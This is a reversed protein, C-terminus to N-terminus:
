HRRVNCLKKRGKQGFIIIEYSYRFSYPNFIGSAHKMRCVILNEQRFYKEFIPLTYSLRKKATFLYIHGDKKLVRKLNKIVPEFWSLESDSSMKEFKVERNPNIYKIGYPPDTVILDISENKISKMVELCDGQILLYRYKEKSDKSM